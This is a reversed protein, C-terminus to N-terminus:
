VKKWTRNYASGLKDRLVASISTFNAKPYGNARLYEAADHQSDFEKELVNEIYSACKMQASKTGDYKVM